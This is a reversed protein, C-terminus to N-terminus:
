KMRLIGNWRFFNLVFRYGKETRGRIRDFTRGIGVGGTRQAIGSATGLRPM